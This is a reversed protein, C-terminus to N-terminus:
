RCHAAEDRHAAYGLVGVLADAEGVVGHELDVRGVQGIGDGEGLGGSM